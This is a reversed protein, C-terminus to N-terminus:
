KAAPMMAAGNTLGDSATCQITHESVVAGSMLYLSAHVAGVDTLLVAYSLPQPSKVRLLRQRSCAVPKIDMSPMAPNDPQHTIINAHNHLASLLTAPGRNSASPMGSEPLSCLQMLPRQALREGLQQFPLAGPHLLLTMSKVACGMKFRNNKATNHTQTNNHIVRTQLCHSNMMSAMGERNIPTTM